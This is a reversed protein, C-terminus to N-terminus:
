PEVLGGPTNAVDMEALLKRARAADRWREEKVALEVELMLAAAAVAIPAQDALLSAIDDRLSEAHDARGRQVAIALRMRLELTKDLLRSPSAPMPDDAGSAPVAQRVGNSRAVSEAVFIPAGCRVALNIADSPRADVSVDGNLVMKAYYTNNQLHTVQVSTVHVNLAGFANAMLDHTLPRSPPTKRLHATLAASETEGVFVPLLLGRTGEGGMLRLFIVPGQSSVRLRHTAFTLAWLQSTRVTELSKHVKVV